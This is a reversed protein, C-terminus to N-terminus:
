GGQRDRGDYSQVFMDTEEVFYDKSQASESSAYCNYTCKCSRGENSPNEEEFTSITVLVM